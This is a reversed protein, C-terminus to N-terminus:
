KVVAKCGGGCTMECPLRVGCTWIAHLGVESWDWSVELSVDSPESLFRVVVAPRWIFWSADHRQDVLFVPVRKRACYPRLACYQLRVLM